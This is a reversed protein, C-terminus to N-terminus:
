TSLSDLTVESFRKMRAKVEEVTLKVTSKGVLTM